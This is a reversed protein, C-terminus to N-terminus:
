TILLGVAKLLRVDSGLLNRADEVASVLFKWGTAAGTNQLTPQFIDAMKRTSAGGPGNSRENTLGNNRRGVLPQETARTPKSRGAHTINTASWTRGRHVRNSVDVLIRVRRKASRKRGLM